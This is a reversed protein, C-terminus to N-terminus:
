GVHIILPFNTNKALLVNRISPTNLNSPIPLAGVKYSVLVSPQIASGTSLPIEYGHGNNYLKVIDGNKIKRNWIAVEDVLGNFTGNTGDWSTGMYFGDYSFNILTGLGQSHTLEGDIYFNIIGSAVNVCIHHWSNLTYTGGIIQGVSAGNTYLSLQGNIAWIATSNVPDFQDIKNSFVAPNTASTGYDYIWFSISFDNTGFNFQSGSLSLYKSNDGDFSAGGNLIGTTTTVGGNNILTNNNRSSDAWSSDDLKWYALLGNKLNTYFLILSRSTCNNNYDKYLCGILDEGCANAIDTCTGTFGDCLNNGFFDIGEVNSCCNNGFYDTNLVIGCTGGCCDGFCSGGCIGCSDNGGIYNGSCDHCSDISYTCSGDDCSGFGGTVPENNCASGNSCGLGYTCCYGACDSGQLACSNGNDDYLTNGDENSPSYINGCRDITPYDGFCYGLVDLDEATCPTGNPDIEPYCYTSLSYQNQCIGNTGTFCCFPGLTICDNECFGGFSDPIVEGNCYGFDNLLSCDCTINNPDTCDM